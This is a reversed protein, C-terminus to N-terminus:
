GKLGLRINSILVYNTQIPKIKDIMIRMLKINFLQDAAIALENSRKHCRLINLTGVWPVQQLSGQNSNSYM